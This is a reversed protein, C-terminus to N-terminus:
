LRKSQKDQGDYNGEMIKQFNGETTWWDFTFGRWDKLFFSNRIKGELSKLGDELSGYDEKLRAVRRLVRAERAAEIRVIQPKHLTRAMRNWWQGVAQLTAEKDENRKKQFDIVSEHCDSPQREESPVKTGSSSIDTNQIDPPTVPSTVKKNDPTHALKKREKYVRTREASTDSQFQRGAWNHPIYSGELEDILGYSALRQRWLQAYDARVRLAQALERIDPLKGGHRSAVCLIQTWMRYERDSLRLIKPDDLAEAYFRFWRSM